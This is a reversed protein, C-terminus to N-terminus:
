LLLQLVRRRSGSCLSFQSWRVVVNNLRRQRLRAACVGVRLSLMLVVLVVVLLPLLVLLLQLLLLLLLLM